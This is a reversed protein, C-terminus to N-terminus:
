WKQTDDDTKKNTMNRKGKKVHVKAAKGFPDADDRPTSGCNRNLARKSSQRDRTNANDRTKFVSANVCSYGAVVLITTRPKCDDEANGRM